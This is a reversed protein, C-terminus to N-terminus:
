ENEKNFYKRLDGTKMIEDVRTQFIEFAEEDGFNKYISVVEKLTELLRECLYLVKDIKEQQPDLDNDDPLMWGVENGISVLRSM